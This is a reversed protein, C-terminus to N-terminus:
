RAVVGRLNTIAEFPTSLVRANVMWDPIGGGPELHMTFVVRTHNEATPALQWSGNAVRVRVRDPQRPYADPAATVSIEVRGTTPHRTLVSRFVNDRESIPWPASMVSYQYSIAGQRELLKSEPCNPFWDHFHDSDRLVALVTEVDAEVIGEGKFAKISSGEVPRTFVDIGDAQRELSWDERPRTGPDAFAQAALLSAVLLLLGGRSLIGAAYM